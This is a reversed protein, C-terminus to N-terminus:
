GLESVVAIGIRISLENTRREPQLADEARLRVTIREDKARCIKHPSAFNTPDPSPNLARIPEHRGRHPWCLRRLRQDPVRNQSETRM